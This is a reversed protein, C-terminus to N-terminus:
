KVFKNLVYILSDPKVAKALIKGDPGVLYNFPISDFKWAKAAKGRWMKEDIFNRGPLGQQQVVLKWADKEADVAINVITFKDASFKKVAHKKVPIYDVCSACWTSWLDIFTYKGAVSSASLENGNIDALTLGPMKDGVNLEEEYISIYDLAEKTLVQINHNGPFRKQANTIFGSFGKRDNGFDVGNYAFLFAGASKTSDAFIRANHEYIAKLSDIRKMLIEQEGGSSIKRSRETLPTIEDIIKKQKDTFFKLHPNIGANRFSYDKPDTSSGHIIVHDVDNIFYIRLPQGVIRLQFVAEEQAPINFSLHDTKYTIEASDITKFEEDNVPIKELYIKGFYFPIFHYDIKTVKEKKECSFLSAAIVILFMPRM